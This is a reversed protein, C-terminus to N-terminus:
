PGGVVLGVGGGSTVVQLPLLSSADTHRDLAIEKSSRLGRSLAIMAPSSWTTTHHPGPGVAAGSSDLLVVDLDAIPRPDGIHGLERGSSLWGSLGLIRDRQSTVIVFPDPLEGIEHAQQRFVDVAIDPAVLAVSDLKPWLTGEMLARQRLAEMVLQGGLSHAVIVIREVPLQQLRDLLRVLGGRAFLVSDRDYIYDTARAASPWSYLVPVGDLEFDHRVQAFRYLAEAFNTNYGHVFVVAERRAPPLDRTSTAIDGLFQGTDDYRAADTVAFRERPADNRRPWEIEGPTHGPPVTVEYLAHRTGFARGPGFGVPQQADRTTAVFIRHPTGAASDDFALQGRPACAAVFALLLGTLLRARISM